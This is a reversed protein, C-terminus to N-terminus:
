RGAWRAAEDGVREEELPDATGGTRASKRLRAGGLLGPVDGGVGPGHPQLLTDEEEEGAASSDTGSSVGSKGRWDDEDFAGWEDGPKRGRGMSDPCRNLKVTLYSSPQEQWSNTPRPPRPPPTSSIQLPPTLSCSVFAVDKTNPWSHNWLLYRAVRKRKTRRSGESSATIPKRPPPAPSPHFGPCHSRKLVAM